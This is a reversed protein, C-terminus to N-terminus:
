RRFSDFSYKGAGQLLICVAGLLYLMILEIAWAGQKTVAFIDNPHALAIAVGMTGIVLISAIRVKFGIILMLPALVEGLYVGYAIFSPYGANAIMNEIGTVGHTIKAVGHFLLLFGITFRLILKASDDYNISKNM